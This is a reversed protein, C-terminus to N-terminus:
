RARHPYITISISAGVSAAAQLATISLADQLAPHTQPGCYGINLSRGKSHNWQSKAKGRLGLLIRVISRVASDASDPQGNLEAVLFSHRPSLEAYLVTMTQELAAVLEALDSRASVDLDVNLFSGQRIGHLRRPTCCPVRRWVTSVQRHVYLRGISM